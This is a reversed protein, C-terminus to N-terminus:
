PKREVRVIGVEDVAEGARKILPWLSADHAVSDMERHLEALCEKADRSSASKAAAEIKDALADWAAGIEDLTAFDEALGANTAARRAVHMITM